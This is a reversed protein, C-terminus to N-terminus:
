TCSQPIGGALGDLSQYGEDKGGGRITMISYFFWRPVDDFIWTRITTAVVRKGCVVVARSRPPRM